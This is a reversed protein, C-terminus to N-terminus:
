EGGNAQVTTIGQIAAGPQGAQDSLFGSVQVGVPGSSGTFVLDLADGLPCAPVTCELNNGVLTCIAREAQGGAAPAVMLSDLDIQAAVLQGDGFVTFGWDNESKPGCNVNIPSQFGLVFPIAAEVTTFGTHNATAGKGGSCLPDGGDFGNNCFRTLVPPLSIIPGECTTGETIVEARLVQELALELEPDAPDVIAPFLDDCQGTSAQLGLTVLPLQVGAPVPGGTNPNSGGLTTCNFSGTVQLRNNGSGSTAQPCFAVAVLKSTNSDVDAQCQPGFGSATLGNVRSYTVDTNCSAPGFYGAITSDVQCPSYSATQSVVNLGVNNTATILSGEPCEVGSGTIIGGSSGGSGTTTSPLPCVRAANSTPSSVQDNPFTSPCQGNTLSSLCTCNTTSGAKCCKFNCSAGTNNPFSSPCTTSTNCICNTTSGSACCKRGAALAQQVFLFEMASFAVVAVAVTSLLRTLSRNSSLRSLLKKM